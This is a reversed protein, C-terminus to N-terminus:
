ACSPQHDRHQGPRARGAGPPPAAGGCRVGARRRAGSRAPQWPTLAASRQASPVLPEAHQPAEGVAAAVAAVLGISLSSGADAGLTSAFVARTPLSGNSAGRQVIPRASYRQLVTRLQRVPRRRLCDVASGRARSDLPAPPRRARRAACGGLVPLPRLQSDRVAHHEHLAQVRGDAAPCANAPLALRLRSVRTGAIFLLRQGPLLHQRLRRRACAPRVDDDRTWGFGCLACRVPCSSLARPMTTTACATPASHFTASSVRTAARSAAAGAQVGCCVRPFTLSQRM